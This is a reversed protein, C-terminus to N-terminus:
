LRYLCKKWRNERNCKMKKVNEIIKNSTFFLKIVEVKTKCENVDSLNMHIAIFRPKQKIYEYGHFIFVLIISFSLKCITGIIIFQIVAIRQIQQIQCPHKYSLVGRAMLPSGCEFWKKQKMLKILFVNAFFWKAMVDRALATLTIIKITDRFTLNYQNNKWKAIAYKISKCDFVMPLTNMLWLQRLWNKM